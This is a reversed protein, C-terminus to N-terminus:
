EQLPIQHVAHLNEDSLIQTTQPNVHSSLHFYAADTIFLLWPDLLENHVNKLIWNCFEIKQSADPPELEHV